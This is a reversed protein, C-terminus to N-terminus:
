RPLRLQWVRMGPQLLWLRSAMQRILRLAGDILIVALPLEGFVGTAVAAWVDDPAATMIDFWADCILLVGTAAASLILLQRRQWGLIATTAMLVVLGVDFGVWTASWNRAMYSDPLTAALFGIWPILGLSGGIMLELRVRRTRAITSMSPVLDAAPRELREILNKRESPDMARIQEDTLDIGAM